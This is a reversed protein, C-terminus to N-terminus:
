AHQEDGTVKERMHHLAEHGRGLPGRWAAVCALLSDSSKPYSLVLQNSQHKKIGLDSIPPHPSDADAGWPRGGM